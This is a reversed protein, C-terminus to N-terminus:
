VVARDEHSFGGYASVAAPVGFSRVEFPSFIVAPIPRSIGAKKSSAPNESM